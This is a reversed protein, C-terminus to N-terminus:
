ARGKATDGGLGLVHEHFRKIGSESAFRAYFEVTTSISKHGLLRRVTEYDGPYRDLHAKAALHRFLHVNVDLGTETLIVKKVAKALKGTTMPKDGAGPFLYGTQAKCLRPRYQTVFIDLLHAVPAPIEAQYPRANKIEAGAIHLSMIEAGPVGSKLIHRKLHLAAINHIRLPVTLLLAIATALEVLKAARFEPTGPRRAKKVLAAPLAHLKRMAEPDRFQELKVTNKEAWGPRGAADSIRRQLAAVEDLNPPPPDLRRAMAHLTHIYTLAMKNPKDGIVHRELVAAIRLTPLLDRVSKIDGAPIKGDTVVLSAFRLLISRAQGASGERLPVDRKTLRRKGSEKLATTLSSVDLLAAKASRSALYAEVSERFSDPFAEWGLHQRQSRSVQTVPRQPWGPISTVAENWIRRANRALKDADRVVRRSNFADLLRDMVADDVGDPEIGDASCMQALTTLALRIRPPVESLLATWAETMPAGKKLRRSFQHGIELACRLSSLINSWRAKSIGAKAPNAKDILRSVEAPMARIEAPQLDVADCFRKIASRLENRKQVPLDDMGGIRDRLDALTPPAWSQPSATGSGDSDTSTETFADFHSTM